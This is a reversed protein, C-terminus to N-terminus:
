MRRSTPILRIIPRATTINAAARGPRQPLVSCRPASATVGRVAQPCNGARDTMKRAQYGLWEVDQFVKAHATCVNAILLVRGRFPAEIGCGGNVRDAVGEVNRM